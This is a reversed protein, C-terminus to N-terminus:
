TPRFNKLKIVCRGTEFRYSQVRLTLYSLVLIYCAIKSITPIWDGRTIHSLTWKTIHSNIRMQFWKLGSDGSATWIDHHTLDNKILEFSSRFGLGRIINWPYMAPRNPPWKYEFGILKSLRWFSSWRLIYDGKIEFM